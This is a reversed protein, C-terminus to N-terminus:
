NVSEPTYFETDKLEVISMFDSKSKINHFNEEDSRINELEKHDKSQNFFLLNIKRHNRIPEM